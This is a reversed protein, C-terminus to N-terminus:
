EEKAIYFFIVGSVVLFGVVVLLGLVELPFFWFLEIAGWFIVVAATARLYRDIV